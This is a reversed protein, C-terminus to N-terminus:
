KEDKQTDHAAEEAGIGSETTGPPRRLNRPINSRAHTTHPTTGSEGFATQGCYFIM